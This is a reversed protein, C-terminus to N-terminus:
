GEIGDASRKWSYLTMISPDDAYEFFLAGYPSLDYKWAASRQKSSVTMITLFSTDREDMEEMYDTERFSCHHRNERAVCVSSSFLTGSLRVDPLHTNTAKCYRESDKNEARLDIVNSM